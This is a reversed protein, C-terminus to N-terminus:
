GEAELLEIMREVIPTVQGKEFRNGFAGNCFHDERLLMTLLAACLEYNADPLRKLEEDPNIPETTMHEWYHRDLAGIEELVEIYLDDLTYQPVLLEQLREIKAWNDLPGDFVFLNEIPIKRRFERTLNVFRVIMGGCLAGSYQTTTGDQETITLKWDGIDTADIIIQREEVWLGSLHFLRDVDYESITLQKRRAVSYVDRGYNYGSFWVRGKDNITLRQEIEEDPLPEPGYCLNNSILSIKKINM